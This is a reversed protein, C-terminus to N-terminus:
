TCRFTAEFVLRQILHKNKYCTKLAKNLEQLLKQSPDGRQDYSRLHSDYELWRRMLATDILGIFPKTQKEGKENTRLYRWDRLQTWANYKAGKTKLVELLEQYAVLEAQCKTFTPELDDVTEDGEFHSFCYIGGEATGILGIQKVLPEPTPSGNNSPNQDAFARLVNIQQGINFAYLTEPKEEVLRASSINGLSDGISLIAGDNSSLLAIASLFNPEYELQLETSKSQVLEDEEQCVTFCTQGGVLDGCVYKDKLAAAFSISRSATITAQQVEFTMEEESPWLTVVFCTNGSVVYTQEKANLVSIGTFSLKSSDLIGKVTAKLGEIQRKRIRYCKIIESNSNNFLVAFCAYPSEFPAISIIDVAEDHGINLRSIETMHRSDVIKLFYGVQLGQESRCLVISSTHNVSLSKICLHDSFLTQSSFKLDQHSISYVLATSNSLITISVSDLVQVDTLLTDSDIQIVSPVFFETAEDFRLTFASSSHYLVVLDGGQSISMPYSGLNTSITKDDKFTGKAWDFNRQIFQGQKTSLFIWLSSKDRYKDYVLASDTIESGDHLKESSCMEFDDTDAEFLVYSGHWYSLLIIYRSNGLDQIELQSVELGDVQVNHEFVGTHKFILEGSSTIYAFAGSELVKYKTIQLQQVKTPYIIEDKTIIPVSDTAYSTLNVGNTSDTISWTNDKRFTVVSLPRDLVSQVVFVASLSGSRIPILKNANDSLRKRNSLQQLHVDTDTYHRLEGSQPGGQCCFVRSTGNNGTLNIDLVPPSSLLCKEVSIHPANSRVNFFISQSLKSSAFFLSGSLHHVGTPITTKGLAVFDLAQISVSERQATAQFLLVYATGDRSIHLSRTPDIRSSCVITSIATTLSSTVMQNDRSVSIKSDRNDNTLELYSIDPGPFYFIHKASFVLVGGTDTSTFHNVPESFEDFQKVMTFNLTQHAFEYFRLSYNFNFDRYLIAVSIAKDTASIIDMAQVVISGIAYSQVKYGDSNRGRKRTSPFEPEPIIVLIIGQFCHLFVCRNSALLIPPKDVCPQQGRQDLKIMKKCKFEDDLDFFYLRYDNTLFVLVSGSHAMAVVPLETKIYDVIDFSNDAQAAYFELKQHKAVVLLSLILSSIFDCCSIGQPAAVESLVCVM